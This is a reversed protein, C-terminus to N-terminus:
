VNRHSCTDQHCEAKYSELTSKCMTPYGFNERAYEEEKITWDKDMPQLNEFYPEFNEEMIDFISINMERM